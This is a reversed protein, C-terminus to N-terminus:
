HLKCLMGPNPSYDEDVHDCKPADNRKVNWGKEINYVLVVFYICTTISTYILTVPIEKQCGAIWITTRLSDPLFIGEM